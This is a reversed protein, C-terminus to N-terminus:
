MNTLPSQRIQKLKKTAPPERIESHMVKGSSILQCM